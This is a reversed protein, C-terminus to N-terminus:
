EIYEDEEELTWEMRVFLGAGGHSIAAACSVGASPPYTPNTAPWTHRGDHCAM